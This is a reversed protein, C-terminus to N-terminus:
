VGEIASGFIDDNFRNNYRFQFEAVYLPLYKASVKHFSGVIGRKFISWFGEITQTHVAGIVYQGKAHDVTAHPFKASLHKYGIWQDTCLLSVKDSVAENVFAELTGARVNEIVRAIVNGKRRM